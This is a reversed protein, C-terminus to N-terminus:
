RVAAREQLFESMFGASDDKGYLQCHHELLPISTVIDAVTVQNLRNEMAEEAERFCASLVTPFFDGLPCNAGAPPEPVAFMPEHELARYIDLLTIEAAPRSLRWGGGPGSHSTLLGADRLPALLRRVVVPHTNANEALQESTIRGDEGTGYALKALAVAYIALAFRNNPQM